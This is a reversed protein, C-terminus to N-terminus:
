QLKKDMDEAAELAEDKSITIFAGIKDDLKLIRNIYEQVVEKVTFSKNRYGNQIDEVTMDEIHELSM